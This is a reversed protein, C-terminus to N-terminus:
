GDKMKNFNKTSYWDIGWLFTRLTFNPFYWYIGKWYKNYLVFIGKYNKTLLSFNM